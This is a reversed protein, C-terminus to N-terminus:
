IVYLVTKMIKRLSGTVHKMIFHQFPFLQFVSVLQLIQSANCQLVTTGEKQFAAGCRQHTSQTHHLSKETQFELQQEKESLELM